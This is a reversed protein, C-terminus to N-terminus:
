KALLSSMWEMIKEFTEERNVENFNEHFNAKHYLYTLLDPNVRKLLIESIDADAVEDHGAVVAFMPHNWKEINNSVWKQAKFLENGFRMTPTSGRFGDEEDKRHRATISKDHTLLDTIDPGPIGLKPTVLSLLKVIPIMAPSIKIANGYYPSSLIFGKISAVDSVARIGLHTAILSGVSHGMIFIPLDKYENKVWNLFRRTDEFFQDFSSIFVNKQKHGRLDYSVTTISKNKFFLAPTIYDGAHALGGHIALIVAKPKEAEWIHIDLALGDDTKLVDMRSESFRM